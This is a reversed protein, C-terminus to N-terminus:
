EQVAPGWIRKLPLEAKLEDDFREYYKLLEEILAGQDWLRISFFADKAEQIAHTNFGSWSVLLGQEAGFKKMVGGLERLVKVDVASSASKVQVCVRPKDFGLPGAAALIDVGGDPGPPSRRTVYGQALLIAEVLRALNHGKFKAGIYKIIQDKAYEELDSVEEIIEPKEVETIKEKELLKRVRNEADNRVIQCVTM